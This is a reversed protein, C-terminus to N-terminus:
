STQETLRRHMPPLTVTYRAQPPLVTCCAAVRSRYDAPNVDITMLVAREQEGDDNVGYAALEIKMPTQFDYYMTYSLNGGVTDISYAAAGSGTTTGSTDGGSTGGASGSTDGGTTGSTDGGTTGGTSGGTSDDGSTVDAKSMELVVGDFLDKESFDVNLTYGSSAYVRPAAALKINALM